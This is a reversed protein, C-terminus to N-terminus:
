NEPFDQKLPVMKGDAVQAYTAFQSGIPTQEIVDGEFAIDIEEPFVCIKAKVVGSADVVLEVRHINKIEAGTDIDTISIDGGALVGNELMGASKIRIRMKKNEM